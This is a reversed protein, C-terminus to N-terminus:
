SKNEKKFVVTELTRIISHIEEEVCQYNNSIKGAVMASIREIFLEMVEHFATMKIEYETIDQFDTEWTDALVVTAQRSIVDFYITARVGLSAKGHVFTVKWGVLGFEKQWKIFEKKFISFHRVTTPKEM